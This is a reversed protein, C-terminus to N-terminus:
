SWEFAMFCSWRRFGRAGATAALLLNALPGTFSQQSLTALAQGDIIAKLTESLCHPLFAQAVAAGILFCLALSLLGRDPYLLSFLRRSTRDLLSICPFSM